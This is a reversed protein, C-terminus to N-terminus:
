YVAFIEEFIELFLESLFGAMDERVLEDYVEM